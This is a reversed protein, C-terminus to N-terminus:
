VRHPILLERRDEAGRDARDRDRGGRGAATQPEQSSKNNPGNEESM